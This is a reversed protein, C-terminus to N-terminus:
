GLHQDGGCRVRLRCRRASVGRPCTVTRGIHPADVVVQTQRLGFRRQSKRRQPPTESMELMFGHALTDPCPAQDEPHDNGGGGDHHHGHAHSQRATLSPGTSTRRALGALVEVGVALALPPWAAVARATVTPHASAVNAALSAALGLGLLLWTLGRPRCGARSDALIVAVAAAIAGDISLPLLWTAIETEGSRRALEMVHSYSIVAASIAVMAVGCVATGRVSRDADVEDTAPRVAAAWRTM